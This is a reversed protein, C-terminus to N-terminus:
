DSRSSDSKTDEVPWGRYVDHWYLGELVFIIAFFTVVPVWSLTALSWGISVIFLISVAAHLLFKSVPNLYHKRHGQFKMKPMLAEQSARVFRFFASFIMERVKEVGFL